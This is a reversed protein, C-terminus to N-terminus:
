NCLAILEDPLRTRNFARDELIYHQTTWQFDVSVKSSCTADMKLSSALFGAHFWCSVPLLCLLHSASTYPCAPLYNHMTCTHSLSPSFQPLGTSSIFDPNIPVHISPLMPARILATNMSRCPGTFFRYLSDQLPLKRHQELSLVLLEWSRSLCFGDGQESYQCLDWSGGHHYSGYM